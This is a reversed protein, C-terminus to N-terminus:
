EADESLELRALLYRADAVFQLASEFVTEAKEEDYAHSTLNRSDGYEFWPLPDGVLGYRAALRFLEKRTRPHDADDPSRNERIWRQVFKWCQEYAVEFNQIVGSRVTDLLDEDEPSHSRAAEAVRISRELTAIAKKLSGLELPM